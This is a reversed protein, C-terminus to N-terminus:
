RAPAIDVATFPAVLRTRGNAEIDICAYAPMPMARWFAFPDELQLAGTLYATLVRGHSVLAAPTAGTAVAAIAVGFRRAAESAPEGGHVSDGPQELIERVRENFADANEVWGDWRQEQLGDTLRVPVGLRDGIISATASAKPEVSGYLTAIGWTVAIEALARAEAIGRPSLRWAPAPISPDVQPSAHRVLYIRPM